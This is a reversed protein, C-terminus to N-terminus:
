GGGTRELDDYQIPPLGAKVRKMNLLHRDRARRAEAPAMFPLAATRQVQGAEEDSAFTLRVGPSGDDMECPVLRFSLDPPPPRSLSERLVEFGRAAEEAWQRDVDAQEEALTRSLDAMPDDVGWINVIQMPGGDEKPAPKPTRKLNLVVTLRDILEDDTRTEFVYALVTAQAGPRSFCVERGAGDFQAKVPFGSRSLARAIGQARERIMTDSDPERKAAVRDRAFAEALQQGVTPAKAKRDCLDRTAADAFRQYMAREDDSLGSDTASQEASLAARMLTRFSEPDDSLRYHGPPIAPKIAQERDIRKNEELFCRLRGKLSKLDAREKEFAVGEESLVDKVEGGVVLWAVPAPEPGLRLRPTHAVARDTDDRARVQEVVEAPPSYQRFKGGEAPRLRTPRRSM